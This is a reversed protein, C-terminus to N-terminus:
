KSGKIRVFTPNSLSSFPHACPNAGGLDWIGVESCDFEVSYTVFLLYFRFSFVCSVQKSYSFEAKVKNRSVKFASLRIRLLILTSLLYPEM